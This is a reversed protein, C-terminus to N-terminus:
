VAKAFEHAANEDSDPMTLYMRGREWTESQEM